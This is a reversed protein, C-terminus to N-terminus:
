NARVTRMHEECCLLAERRRRVMGNERRLCNLIWVGLLWSDARAVVRGCSM